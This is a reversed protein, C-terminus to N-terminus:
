KDTSEKKNIVIKNNEVSIKVIDEEKVDVMKLIDSPLTLGLSNGVKRIKREIYM